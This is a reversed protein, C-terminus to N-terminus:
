LTKLMLVSEQTVKGRHLLGFPDDVRFFREGSRLLNKIVQAAVSVTHGDGVVAQKIDFITTHTEAPFIVAVSLMVLCHGERGSLEDPPKENMYQRISELTNSVVSKKGVTISLLLQNLTTLQKSNRGGICVGECCFLRLVVAVSIFLQGPDRQSLARGAVVAM